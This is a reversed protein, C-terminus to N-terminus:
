FTKMYADLDKSFDPNKMITKAEEFLAKARQIDGKRKYAEALFLHAEINNKDVRLITEGRAIAKDLQGSEVAMRGLILNAPINTSDQRVITLLQEIGKMTEGTGNIYIDALDIRTTDSPNLAISQQLSSIAVTAMWQKYNPNKEEHMEEALLHAAFNLKKQSNELKGSEAFYYAAVARNKNNQWLKALAELALIKQEKVNGRTITNEQRSIEAQAAPSLKMKANALLTDFNAPEPLDMMGAQMEGPTGGGAMPGAPAPKNEKPKLTNGGFYLAAILGLAVFIAIFHVPKL